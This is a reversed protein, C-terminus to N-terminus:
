CTARPMRLRMLVLLAALVGSPEPVPVFAFDHTGSLGGRGSPVLTGLFAGTNADYRLVASNGFSGVILEGSPSREMYIPINMIGTALVRNLTGQEGDFALIENTVSQAVLLEGADNFALGTANRHTTGANFSRQFVGDSFAFVRNILAAGVYLEGTPGFALGVPGDLGAGQAAVGVFDGTLGDYRLVRDNLASAVYLDGDPGFEIDRVSSLGGAGPQTFPGLFAGSQGHYKLIANGDGLGVYLNGDPGYAIGNPNALEPGQAFVGRFAGTSADYRLINNTFRSSVLLDQGRAAACLNIGCLFLCPAIHRM